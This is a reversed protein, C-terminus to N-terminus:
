RRKLSVVYKQLPGEYETVAVAVLTLATACALVALTLHDGGGHWGGAWLSSWPPSFSWHEVTFQSPNL